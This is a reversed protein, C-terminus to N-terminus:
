IGNPITSSVRATCYNTTLLLEVTLSTTATTFAPAYAVILDTENFQLTTATYLVAAGGDVSYFMEITTSPDFTQYYDGLSTFSIIFEKESGPKYILNTIIPKECQFEEINININAM